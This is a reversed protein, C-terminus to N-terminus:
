CGSRRRMTGVAVRLTGNNTLPAQVNSSVGSANLGALKELLGDNLISGSANSAIGADTLIEFAAGADIVLSDRDTQSVGLSFIGDMTMTGADFLTAGIGVLSAAQVDASGDVAVTGPGVIRTTVFNDHGSFIIQNGDLLLSGANPIYAGAYAENSGLHIVGTSGMAIAGISILGGLTVTGGVDLEGMGSLSGGFNAVSAPNSQLLHAGLGISIDGGTQTLNGNLNFTASQQVLTGAAQVIAGGWSSNTSGGNGTLDLEGFSLDFTGTSSSEAVAMLTATTDFTVTYSGNGFSATDAPGPLV